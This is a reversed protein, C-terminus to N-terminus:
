SESTFPLTGMSSAFNALGAPSTLYRGRFAGPSVGFEARFARNFNSVDGFGCDLAIDLIKEPEAALRIAAERLRARVVYRHPTLGTLSEFTRLFHYTSLRAERALDGLRHTAGPDRDIARVVRTVRAISSPLIAQPRTVADGAIRAVRVALEVSLEEWEGDVAAGSLGCCARAFLPALDDLPPLRLGRFCPPVGISSVISEFYDPSYSFSVCRDGAGHEHGCEFLQGENGLLISGPTLLERGEAARCQFSGAVVLIIRMHSHREEFRRDRPGSTCVVDEVSWRGDGALAQSALGGPCGNVARRALARELEVAIKAL